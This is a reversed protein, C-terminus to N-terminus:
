PAETIPTALLVMAKESVEVLGTALDTVRLDYYARGFDTMAAVEASTLSLTVVGNVSPSATITFTEYLTGGGESRIESVYSFESTDIPDGDDDALLLDFSFAQEKNIKLDPIRFSM